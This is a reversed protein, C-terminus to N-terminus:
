YSQRYKCTYCTAATCASTPSFLAMRTIRFSSPWSSCLVSVGPTVCASETYEGMRQRYEDPAKESYFREVTRIEYSWGSALM